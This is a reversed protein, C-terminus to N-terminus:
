VAPRPGGPRAPCAARTMAALDTPLAPRLGARRDGLRLALDPPDVTRHPSAACVQSQPRPVTHRDGAAAGCGGAHRAHHSHHLVAPPRRWAAYFPGVGGPRPVRPLLDPVAILDRIGRDDGPSAARRPPG